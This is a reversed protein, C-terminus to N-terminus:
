NKVLRVIQSHGWSDLLKLIYMGQSLKSSNLEIYNEGKRVFKSSAFVLQGMDSYIQLKVDGSKPISFNILSNDEIPNPSIQLCFSCKENDEPSFVIDDFTENTGDFDFQVLRYYCLDDCGLLDIESYNKATLSNGSGKIKSMETWNNGDSSKFLLFYDNNIELLTEWTLLVSEGKKTAKFSILEIPLPTPTCGGEDYWQHGGMCWKSCCVCNIPAQGSSNWDYRNRYVKGGYNVFDGSHYISSSNWNMYNACPPQAFIFKDSFVAALFTFLKITNVM